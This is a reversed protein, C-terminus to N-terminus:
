MGDLEEMTYSETRGATNKRVENIDAPTIEGADNNWAHRIYNILSTLDSNGLADNHAFAPMEGGVEPVQYLKDGVKIPGTLGYLIISILKNKDGTVWQSENLPAGLSQLGEGDDGHCVECFQAYLRKGSAYRVSADNGAGSRMKDIRDVLGKTQKYVLLSTDRINQKVWSLFDSEKGYLGSLAADTIYRDGPYRSALDKILPYAESVGLSMAKSGAFTLYVSLAKDDGDKYKELVSLWKAANDKNMSSIVATIAHMQLRSDNSELFAKIEDENLLGLGELTWFAHLKALQNDSQHLLDILQPETEKMAHDVILRQATARVWSEQNGLLGVLEQGSKDNLFTPAHKKGKPVVKYIRGRNLPTTLEFDAIHKKLYPTIYTADQIIGRYMDVIYLAGDPGNYLSVPRFREDDSALFEKDHYAQEGKVRIDGYQLIDRKILNAAPEAVFANQYYAEGFLDSRFIVPGCAATFETLRDTSDLVGPQYGRNVGATAHIPYTRNDSVILEDFGKLHRQNKNWVFAGPLFYDGLLNTSNNNYFLRGDDDQTIGWQGRFQTHEIQWHGDVMRYRKDSKANYLWNDLGRMLGNPQHETTGGAAYEEDVVYKEGATDGSIKVFWLRPPEAVLLGDQYFAMARPLILSDLFVKRNDMQGDGDEDELIVIKGLPDSDQGTALTDQMYSTMEMVWLRGSADYEMAVPAQVLPEAAVLKVEFGDELKFHKLSEEPSMTDDASEKCGAIILIFLLLYAPIRM